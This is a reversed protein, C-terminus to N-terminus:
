DASDRCVTLLCFGASRRGVEILGGVSMGDILPYEGPFRVTGEATVVKPLRGLKTQRKLKAVYPALEAVRDGYASLVVILDRSMLELNDNTKAGSLVKSPSFSLCELIPM